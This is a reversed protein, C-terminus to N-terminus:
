FQMDRIGGSGRPPDFWRPSRKVVRTRPRTNTELVERIPAPAPPEPKTVDTHRIPAPPANPEARAVVQRKTREADQAKAEREVRKHRKTADRLIAKDSAPSLAGAADLADSLCDCVCMQPRGEADDRWLRPRDSGLCDVAGLELRARVDIRAKVQEAVGADVRATGGVLGAIGASASEALRDLENLTAAALWDCRQPPEYLVGARKAERELRRTSHVLQSLNV